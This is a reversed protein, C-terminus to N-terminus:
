LSGNRGRRQCYALYKLQRQEDDYASSRVDSRRTNCKKRDGPRLKPWLKYVALYMLVRQPHEVSCYVRHHGWSIEFLDDGVGQWYPPGVAFPGDTEIKERINEFNQWSNIKRGRLKDLYDLVDCCGNPGIYPVTTWPQRPGKIM